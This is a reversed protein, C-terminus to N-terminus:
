VTAAANQFILIRFLRRIRQLKLLVSLVKSAGCRKVVGIFEEVDHGAFYHKPLGTCGSFIM